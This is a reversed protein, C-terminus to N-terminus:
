AFSFRLNGRDATRYLDNLDDLIVSVTKDILINGASKRLFFLLFNVQVNSADKLAFRM